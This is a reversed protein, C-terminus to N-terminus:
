QRRAHTHAAEWIAKALAKQTPDHEVTWHKFNRYDIADAVDCLIKKWLTGSVYMRWEYDWDEPSKWVTPPAVVGGPRGAGVLELLRLLTESDRARVVMVKRSRRKLAVVEAMQDAVPIPSGDWEDVEVFGFKCQLYM